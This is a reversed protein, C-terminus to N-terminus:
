KFKVKEYIKNTRFNRHNLVNLRIEMDVNKEFKLGTKIQKVQKTLIERNKVITQKEYVVFFFQIFHYIKDATEMINIEPTTFLNLLNFNYLLFDKLHKPNVILDFNSSFIFEYFCSTNRYKFDWFNAFIRHQMFKDIYNLYLLENLMSSQAIDDGLKTFLFSFLFILNKIDEVKYTNKIFTQRQGEFM